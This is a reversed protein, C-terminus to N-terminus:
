PESTPTSSLRTLHMHILKWVGERRYWVDTEYNSRDTEVGEASRGRYSWAFSTLAADGAEGIAVATLPPLQLSVPGAGSAFQAVVGQRMEALTMREGVSFILADEWYFSLYAEADHRLWVEGRTRHLTDIKEFVERQGAASVQTTTGGVM